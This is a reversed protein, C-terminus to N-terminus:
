EERVPDRARHGAPVLAIVVWGLAMSLHLHVADAGTFLPSALEGSVSNNTAHLLM